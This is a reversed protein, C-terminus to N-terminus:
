SSPLLPAIAVALRDVAREEFSSLSMAFIREATQGLDGEVADRAYKTLEHLHLHLLEHVLVKRRYPEPWDFFTDSVAVIAEDADDRIFTEATSTKGTPVGKSLSLSWSGLGLALAANRLYADILRRQDDSLSSVGGFPDPGDGKQWGNM